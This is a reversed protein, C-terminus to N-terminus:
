VKGVKACFDSFLKEINRANLKIKREACFQRFKTAIMTNDMNCGADRKIAKWYDDYEIGGAEPFSIVEKHDEGM